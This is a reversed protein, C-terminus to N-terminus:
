FLSLQKEVTCIEVVKKCQEINFHGIHCNEVNLKLKNALWKYAKTRSMTRNKWIPDFASHAERKMKRLEANALIGLPKKTRKHCGVYADCDPCKWFSLSYLDPRHPYIEEGTVLDAAKFCYSCFPPKDTSM